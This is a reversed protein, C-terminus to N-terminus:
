SSDANRVAKLFVAERQRFDKVQEWVKKEDDVHRKHEDTLQQRLEARKADEKEKHEQRLNGLAVRHGERLKDETEMQKQRVNDEKIRQVNFRESVEKQQTKHMDMMKTYHQTSMALMNEHIADREQAEQARFIMISGMMQLNKREAEIEENLQTNQLQMDLLSMNLEYMAPGIKKRSKKRNKKYKRNLKKRIRVRERIVKEDEGSPVNFGSIEESEDLEDMLSMIRENLNGMEQQRLLDMPLERERQDKQRNSLLALMDQEAPKKRSMHMEMPGVFVMGGNPSDDSLILHVHRTEQSPRLGRLKEISWGAEFRVPLDNHGVGNAQQVVDAVWKNKGPDKLWFVAQHGGACTFVRNPDAQAAAAPAGWYGEQQSAGATWALFQLGCLMAGITLMRKNGIM